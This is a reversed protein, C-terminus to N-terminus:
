QTRCGGVIFFNRNVHSNNQLSRRKVNKKVTAAKIEAKMNYFRM